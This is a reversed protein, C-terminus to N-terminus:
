CRRSLTISSRTHADKVPRPLGEVITAPHGLRYHHLAKPLPNSHVLLPLAQPDPAAYPTSIRPTLQGGVKPSQDNRDVPGSAIPTSYMRLYELVNM